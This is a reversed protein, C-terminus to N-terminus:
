SLSGVPQSDTVGPRVIRRRGNWIVVEALPMSGLGWDASNYQVPRKTLYMEEWVQHLLGQDLWPKRAFTKLRHDVDMVVWSNEHELHYVACPFGLVREDLDSAVAMYCLLADLHMSWIPLEPYGRLSNWHKRALMTFDGCGNTHVRRRPDMLNGSGRLACALTRRAMWFLRWRPRARRWLGVCLRGASRLLDHAAWMASRWHVRRVERLRGLARAAGVMFVALASPSAVVLDAAKRMGAVFRKRVRRIKTMLGKRWSRAKNELFRHTRKWHWWPLRIYAGPFSGYKTHIRLIHEECWELQREVSVDLPIEAAVDTRDIRYLRHEQLTGSALFRVLEESFLLDPNTAIVFEGRARRIGVNKAIYQFLPIVDANRLRNHVDQPVEIFRIVFCSSATRIPVVEHLRPGPPPNWEVVILEGALGHKDALQLLGEVFVTFRRVMDKGHNDNRSAVVFSIRCPPLHRSASM